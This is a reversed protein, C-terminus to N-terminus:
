RALALISREWYSATVSSGRSSAQTASARPAPRKIYPPLPAAGHEALYGELDGEVRLVRGGFETTGEVTGPAGVLTAAVAALAEAFRLQVAGALPAAMKVVELALQSVMIPTKVPLATFLRVSTPWFSSQDDDVQLQTRVLTM